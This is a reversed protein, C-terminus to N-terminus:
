KELIKRVITGVKSFDVVTSYNKKLVGMIKGMDKINTAGTEIIAQECIKQTEEDNLQKPLFSEIIKIEENEIDVLEQRGGRKYLEISDQRQKKMKKLLSIIDSEKTQEKNPISRNAIDRDKISALILRLTSVLSKNKNKLAVNLQDNIKNKLSM